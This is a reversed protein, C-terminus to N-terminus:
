LCLDLQCWNLCLWDILITLRPTYPVLVGKSSLSGPMGVVSMCGVVVVIFYRFCYSTAAARREIQTIFAISVLLSSILAGDRIAFWSYGRFGVFTHSMHRYVQVRRELYQQLAAYLIRHHVYDYDLVKQYVERKQNFLDIPARNPSDSDVVACTDDLAPM